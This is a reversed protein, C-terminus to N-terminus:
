EDDDVMHQRVSRVIPFQAAVVEVTLMPLRLLVSQDPFQLGHAQLHRNFCYWFGSSHNALRNEYCVRYQTPHKPAITKYL